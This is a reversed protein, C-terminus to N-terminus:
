PKKRRYTTLLTEPEPVFTTPRTTRDAFAQIHCLKLQDGEIEYIGQWVKGALAGPGRAIVLDIQKPQTNPYTIWSGAIEVVGDSEMEFETDRFTLTTKELNIASSGADGSVSKVGTWSGKLQASGDDAPGCGLVALLGLASVLPLLHRM